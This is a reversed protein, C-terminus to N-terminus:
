RFVRRFITARSDPVTHEFLIANGEPDYHGVWTLSDTVWTFLIIRTQREWEGETWPGDPLRRWRAAGSAALRLEAQAGDPTGLDGRWRGTLPRALPPQSAMTILSGDATELLLRCYSFWYRAILSTDGTAILSDATARYDLPREDNLVLMTDGYFELRLTENHYLGVWRGRLATECQQPQGGLGNAALSAAVPAAFPLLGWVLAAPLLGQRGAGSCGPRRGRGQRAPPEGLISPDHCM